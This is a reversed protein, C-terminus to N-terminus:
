QSQADKLDGGNCRLHSEQMGAAKKEFLGPEWMRGVGAFLYVAYAIGFRARKLHPREPHLEKRKSLAYLKTYGSGYDLQLVTGSGGFTGQAGKCKDTEGLGLGQYSCIQNQDSYNAERRGRM